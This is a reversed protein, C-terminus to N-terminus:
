AYLDLRRLERLLRADSAVLDLAAAALEAVLACWGANAAFDLQEPDLTDLAPPFGSFYAAYRRAGALRRPLAADLDAQMVALNQRQDDPLSSPQLDSLRDALTANSASADRMAAVRDAYAAELQERTGTDPADLLPDFM